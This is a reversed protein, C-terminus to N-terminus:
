HVSFITLNCFESQDIKPRAIYLGFDRRVWIKTFGKPYSPLRRPRLMVEVSTSKVEVFIGRNEESRWHANLVTILAMALGPSLNEPTKCLLRECWGSISLM